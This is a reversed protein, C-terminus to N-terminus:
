YFSGGQLGVSKQGGASLVVKRLKRLLQLFM